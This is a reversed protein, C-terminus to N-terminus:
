PPRIVQLGGTILFLIGGSYENERTRQKLLMLVMTEFAYSSTENPGDFCANLQIGKCDRTNM